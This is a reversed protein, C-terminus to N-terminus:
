AAEAPVIALARVGPHKFSAAMKDANRRSMSWGGVAPEFAGAAKREEFFAIRKARVRAVYGAWDGAICDRAAEIEVASFRTAHRWGPPTV